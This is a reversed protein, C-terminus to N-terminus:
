LVIEGTIRRSPTGFISLLLAAFARLSLGAIPVNFDPQDGALQLRQQGLREATVTNQALVMQDLLRLAVVDPSLGAEALRTPV